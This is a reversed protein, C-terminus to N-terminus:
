AGQGLRFIWTKVFLPSFVADVYFPLKCNKIDMLGPSEFLTVQPRCNVRSLLFSGNGTPRSAPATKASLNLLEANRNSNEARFHCIDITHSRVRPNLSISMRM